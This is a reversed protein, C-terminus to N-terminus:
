PTVNGRVPVHKGGRGASSRGVQDRVRSAPPQTGGSDSHGRSTSRADARGRLRRPSPAQNKPPAAQVSRKPEKRTGAGGPRRIDPGTKAVAMRFDVPKDGQAKGGRPSKSRGARAAPSASSRPAPKAAQVANGAGAGAARALLEAMSDGVPKDVTTYQTKVKSCVERLTLMRKRQDSAAQVARVCQNVYADAVRRPLAGVDVFNTWAVSPSGDKSLLSYGDAHSTVTFAGHQHAESCWEAALVPTLTVGELLLDTTVLTDLLQAVSTKFNVVHTDVADSAAKLEAQLKTSVSATFLQAYTEYLARWAAGADDCKVHQPLFASLPKIGKRPDASDINERARRAHGHLAILRGFATALAPEFECWVEDKLGPVRPLPIRTRAGGLETTNPNEHSKEGPRAGVKAKAKPPAKSKHAPMPVHDQDAHGAAGSSPAAPGARRAAPREPDIVM